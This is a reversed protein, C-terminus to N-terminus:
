KAQILIHNKWYLSHAKNFLSPKKDVNRKFGYIYSNNKEKKKKQYKM